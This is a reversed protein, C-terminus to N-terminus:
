LDALLRRPSRSLDPRDIAQATLTTLLMALCTLLAHRTVNELGQVYFAKLGYWRKLIGFAREIDGRKQRHHQWWASFELSVLFKKGLRRLNYDIAPWARLGFLIFILIAETWYAADARVVRIGLGFLVKAALLLLIAPVNDAVNAPTVAFMVPLMSLHDLVLHIKYGKINLFKNWRADPDDHYWTPLKSADIILARGSIIGQEVLRRVLLVFALFFPLLGLGRKRRGYHAPDIIWVEGRQPDVPYGLAVALDLHDYLYQIIGEDSKQWLRQIIATLWITLAAYVEPRGRRPGPLRRRGLLQGAAQLCQRGLSVLGTIQLLQVPTVRAIYKTSSRARLPQTLALAEQVQPLTNM